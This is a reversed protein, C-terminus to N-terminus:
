KKGWTSGALFRTITPRSVNLLDAIEQASVGEGRKIRIFEMSEKTLKANTIRSQHTGHRLKDNENDLYSGWALNSASNNSSDGDLHRVCSRPFPPESIFTEAIIRHLHTRRGKKNVDRLNLPIYGKENIRLPLVKWTAEKKMGVYYPGWEWCTEIVGEDSIRYAPFDKIPKIMIDESFVLSNDNYCIFTSVDGRYHFGPVETPLLDCSVAYHGARMFADRVRGSYECAILVRM